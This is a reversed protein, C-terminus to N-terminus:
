VLISDKDLLIRILGDFSPPLKLKLHINHLKIYDSLSKQTSEGSYFEALDKINFEGYPFEM